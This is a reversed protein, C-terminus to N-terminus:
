IQINANTGQALWRFAFSNSELDNTAMRVTERLLGCGWKLHGIISIYVECEVICSAPALAKICCIHQNKINIAWLCIKAIPEPNRFANNCHFKYQLQCVVLKRVLVTYGIRYCPLRLRFKWSFIYFFKGGFPSEISLWNHSIEREAIMARIFKKWTSCSRNNGCTRHVTSFKAVPIGHKRM